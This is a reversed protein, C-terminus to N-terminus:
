PGLTYGSQIKAPAFGSGGGETFGPTEVSVALGSGRELAATGPDPCSTAYNAILAPTAVVDAYTPRRLRRRIRGPVSEWREDM